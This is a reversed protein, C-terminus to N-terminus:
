LMGLTKAREEAERFAVEKEKGLLIEEFAQGVIQEIEYTYRGYNVEPINKSWEMLDNYIYQNNLFESQIDGANTDILNINSSALNIESVLKDLLDTDTAITSELFDIALEEGDNNNTVYWSSGGVSTANVCSNNKELCPVPAVAWKGSQSINEELTNIVWSSNIVSVIEENLFANQFASTDSIIKVIGSDLMKMLIDVSKSLSENESINVTKGDDKVYWEGCSQMMMRVLELNTPDLTLLYKGTKEKVTKGIEIFEDWTINELDKATFGSQEIFDLRYYLGAVGCDFPIGYVDGEYECASIKSPVFDDTDIKDSLNAIGDPFTHLFYQISYDELLVIDPLDDDSRISLATKFKDVIDSLLMVEINLSFDPNEKQYIKEAERIAVYNFSEDWLWVTLENQNKKNNVEGSTYICSPLLISIILCLVVFLVLKSKIM